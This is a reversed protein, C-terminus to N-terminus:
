ANNCAIEYIYAEKSDVLQRNPVANRDRLSSQYSTAM